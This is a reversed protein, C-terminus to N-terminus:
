FPIKEKQMVEGYAHEPDGSYGQSVIWRPWPELIVKDSIFM